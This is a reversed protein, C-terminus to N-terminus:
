QTQGLYWACLRDVDSDPPLTYEGSIVAAMLIVTACDEEPTSALYEQYKANDMFADVFSEALGEDDELYELYRPHALLADVLTNVTDAHLQTPNEVVRDVIKDVDEDSLNNQCGTLGAVLVFSALLAAGLSRWTHTM